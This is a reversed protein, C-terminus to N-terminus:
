YNGLEDAPTGRSSKLEAFGKKKLYSDKESSVEPSAGTGGGRLTNIARELAIQSDPDIGPKNQIDQLAAIGAEVPDVPSAKEPAAEVPPPGTAGMPSGGGGGLRSMLAQQVPDM